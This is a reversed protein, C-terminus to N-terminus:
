ELKDLHPVVTYSACDGFRSELGYALLCCYVIFSSSYPFLFVFVLYYWSTNDFLFGFFEAFFRKAVRWTSILGNTFLNSYVFLFLGELGLRGLTSSGKLNKSEPDQLVDLQMRWDEDDEKPFDELNKM